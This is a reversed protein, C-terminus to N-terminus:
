FSWIIHWKWLTFTYSNFFFYGRRSLLVFPRLSSIVIGIWGHHLTYERTTLIKIDSVHILHSDEIEWSSVNLSSYLLIPNKFSLWKSKTIIRMQAVIQYMIRFWRMHMISAMIKRMFLFLVRLFRHSSYKFFSSFVFCCWLWLFIIYLYLFNCYFSHYKHKIMNDLIIDITCM